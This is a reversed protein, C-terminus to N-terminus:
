FFEAHQSAHRLKADVNALALQRLLRSLSAGQIKGFTTVDALLDHLTDAGLSIQVAIEGAKQKVCGDIRARLDHPIFLLHTFYGTHGCNRAPIAADTM